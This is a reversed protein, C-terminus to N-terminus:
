TPWAAREVEGSPDNAIARVVIAIPKEVDFSWMM